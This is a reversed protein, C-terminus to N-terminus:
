TQESASTDPRSERREAMRLAGDCLLFLGWVVIYVLWWARHAAPDVGLLLLKVGTVSWAALFAVRVWRYIRRWTQVSMSDADCAAIYTRSLGPVAGM